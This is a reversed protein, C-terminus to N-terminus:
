HWRAYLPAQRAVGILGKGGIKPQVTLGLM